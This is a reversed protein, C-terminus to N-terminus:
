RYITLYTLLQRPSDTIVEDVGFEIMRQWNEEGNVTWPAVIFGAAQLGKVSLADLARYDPSLIEVDLHLLNELIFDEKLLIRGRTAKKDLRKVWDMVDPAFSSYYVSKKIGYDAVMKVVTTTIAEAARTPKIELNASIDWDKLKECLESFHVAPLDAAKCESVPRGEYYQDHFIMVQGDSSLQLDLEIRDAGALFAEQFGAISNEPHTAKSGRHGQVKFPLLPRNKM